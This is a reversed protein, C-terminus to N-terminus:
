ATKNDNSIPQNSVVRGQDAAGRYHGVEGHEINHDNNNNSMPQNSVFRARTLQVQIIVQKSTSLITTMIIM